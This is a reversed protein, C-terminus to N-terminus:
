VLKQQRNNVQPTYLRIVELAEVDKAEMFGVAFHNNKASATWAQTLRGLGNVWVYRDASGM